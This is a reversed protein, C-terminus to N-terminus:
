QKGVSYMGYVCHETRIKISETFYVLLKGKIKRLCVVAASKGGTNGDSHSLESPASSESPPQRIVCEVCVSEEREREGVADCVVCLVEGWCFREHQRAKTGRRYM